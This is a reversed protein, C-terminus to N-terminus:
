DKASYIDLLNASIRREREDHEIDAASLKGGTAKFREAKYELRRLENEIYKDGCLDRCITKTFESVM